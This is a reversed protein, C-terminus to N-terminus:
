LPEAWSNFIDDYKKDIDQRKKIERQCDGLGFGSLIYFYNVCAIM